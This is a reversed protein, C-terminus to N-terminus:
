KFRMSESFAKFHDRERRALDADGRLKIFWSQGDAVVWALLIAEQRSKDEPSVLELYRGELEGIKIPEFSAELDAAAIAALGVQGRWRNVNDLDSGGASTVTVEAKENETGAIVYNAKRMVTLSRAQWQEPVDCDLVRKDFGALEGAAPPRGGGFGPVGAHVGDLNGGRAPRSMGSRASYKGVYEVFSVTQEGAKFETVENQLEQLAIERLGMQRRWRNINSLLMQDREAEVLALRTVRMELQEGAAPVLITAFRIGGGGGPLQKWGSPLKWTPKLEKFRVTELFEIYKGKVGAVRDKGGVILFFWGFDRGDPVAAALMRDPDPVQGSRKGILEELVHQKDVEYVEVPDVNGCGAMLLLCVQVAIGLAGARVLSNKRM